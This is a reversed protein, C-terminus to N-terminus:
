NTRYNYPHIVTMTPLAIHIRGQNWIQVGVRAVLSYSGLRRAQGIRIVNRRNILHDKVRVELKVSLTLTQGLCLNQM